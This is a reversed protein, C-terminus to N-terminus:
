EEEEEEKKGREIVEPEAEVEEEVVEEITPASIVVVINDPDALLEVQSPVVIDRVLISSGIETLQSIDVVIREPLDRPFCEVELQEHSLTLVGGLEKVAVSEGEVVVPVLARLKKNAAVAQFDVHLLFGTIPHRQRERVLVNYTKGDVAISILQSATINSLTRSADRWDLVIPISPGEGYIVAPLLGQRRLQKVQKGTIQRPQGKLVIDEM